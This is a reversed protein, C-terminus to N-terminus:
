LTNGWDPKLNCDEQDRGGSYSANNAGHENSGNKVIFTKFTPNRLKPTM